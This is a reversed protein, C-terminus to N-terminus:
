IYHIHTYVFNIRGRSRTNLNTLMLFGVGVVYLVIGIIERNIKFSMNDINM